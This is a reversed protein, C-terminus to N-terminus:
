MVGLRPGWSQPPRPKTPNIIRDFQKSMVLGNKSVRFFIDSGASFRESSPGGREVPPDGGLRGQHDPNLSYDFIVVEDKRRNGLRESTLNHSSDLCNRGDYSAREENTPEWGAFGTPSEEFLTPSPPSPQSLKHIAGAFSQTTSRPNLPAASNTGLNDM